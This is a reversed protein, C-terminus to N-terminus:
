RIPLSRIRISSERVTVFAGEVLARQAQDLVRAFHDVVSEPRMNRLRFLVVSPLAGGSDAVLEAFDLDHTILVYGGTKAKALIDSDPLRGEGTEELHTAEFGRRRLDSALVPSIGMDLLFKM